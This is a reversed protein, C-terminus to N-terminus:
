LLLYLYMHVSEHMSMTCVGECTNVCLYEHRCESLHVVVYVCVCDCMYDGVSEYECVSVGSVCVCM